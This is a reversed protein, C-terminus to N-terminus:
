LLFCTTDNFSMIRKIYILFLLQLRQFVAFLYDSTTSRHPDPLMIDFFQCVIVSCLFSTSNCLNVQLPVTTITYYNSKNIYTCGTGIVALTTLEFGASLSTYQFCCLQYLKDTAQSLYPKKRRTIRNGGRIFCAVVIYRFYQQFHYM